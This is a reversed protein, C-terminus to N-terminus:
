QTNGVIIDVRVVGSTHGINRIQSIMIGQSNPNIIIRSKALNVLARSLIIQIMPQRLMESYDIIVALHQSLWHSSFAALWFLCSRYGLYQGPLIKRFWHLGLDLEIVQPLNRHSCDDEDLTVSPYIWESLGTKSCSGVSWCDFEEVM